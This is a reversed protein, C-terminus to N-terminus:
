GNSGGFGGVGGGGGGGGGGCLFVRLDARGTLGLKDYARQLYNSVTRPSLGLRAAIQPTSASPALLVVERERPTLRSRLRWQDLLPTRAGECRQALAEGREHFVAASAQRGRLRRAQAAATATEAALLVFGLKEFGDTADGLASEDRRALGRAAVAMAAVAEGEVLTALKALRAHVASAAGLRAADYLASAELALFGNELAVEATCQCLRAGRSLDGEAVATWARGLGVWPEFMASRRAGKHEARALWVRAPEVRGEVGREVGEEASAGVMATVVALEAFLVGRLGGWGEGPVLLLAERLWGEATRVRGEGRAVAGLLAAWMGAVPRVGAGVAEGYGREALQRASALEGCALRAMGAGLALQAGAWLGETRLREVSLDGARLDGARLDGASLRETSLDGASLDRVGERYIVESLGLRGQLGAAAAGAGAAWVRAERMVGVGALVARSTTLAQGARGDALQVWARKAETRDRGAGRLAHEAVFASQGLGFYRIEATLEAWMVADGDGDGVGDGVMVRAPLVEAARWYEGQLLLVRSYALDAKVGPCHTRAAVALEEALALDSCQVARWAAQLFYEPRVVIGARLQWEAARM